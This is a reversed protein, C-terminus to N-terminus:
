APLRVSLFKEDVTWIPKSLDVEIRSSGVLVFSALLVVAVVLAARAMLFGM